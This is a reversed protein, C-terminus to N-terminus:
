VRNLVASSETRNRVCIRNDMNPEAVIDPRTRVSVRKLPGKSASCM